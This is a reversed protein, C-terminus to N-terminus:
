GDSGADGARRQRAQDKRRRLNLRLAEALRAKERAKRDDTPSEPAGRDPPPADTESMDSEPNTIEDHTSAV